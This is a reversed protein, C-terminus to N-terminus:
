DVSRTRLRSSSASSHNCALLYPGTTACLSVSYSTTTYYPYPTHYSPTTFRDDSPRLSM